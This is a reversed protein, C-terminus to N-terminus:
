AGTEQQRAGRQRFEHAPGEHIHEAPTIGGISSVALDATAMISLMPNVRVSHPFLSGDAVFLNDIGRVAFREDVVDRQPNSGRCAGGQPHSSGFGVLDSQSRMAADVRDLHAECAIVIPEACPMYVRRAGAALMARAATKCGDRFDRLEEPSMRYRIDAHDFFRRFLRHGLGLFVEGSPKTPVL